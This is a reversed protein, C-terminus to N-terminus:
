PFPFLSRNGQCLRQSSSEGGEGPAEEREGRAGGHTAGAQQPARGHAGSGWAWPPPAEERLFDQQLRAGAACCIGLASRAPPSAPKEAPGIGEARM